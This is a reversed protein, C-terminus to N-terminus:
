QAWGEKATEKGALSATDSVGLLVGHFCESSIILTPAWHHLARRYRAFFLGDPDDV